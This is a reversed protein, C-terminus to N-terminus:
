ISVTLYHIKTQFLYNVSNCSNIATEQISIILNYNFNCVYTM